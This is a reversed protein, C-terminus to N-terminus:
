KWKIPREDGTRSTMRSLVCRTSGFTDNDSNALLEFQTESRSQFHVLRSEESGTMLTEKLRAFIRERSTQLPGGAILYPSTVGKKTRKLATSTYLTRIHGKELM